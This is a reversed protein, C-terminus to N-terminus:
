AASQTRAARLAAKVEDLSSYPMPSEDHGPWTHQRAIDLALAVDVTTAPQVYVREDYTLTRTWLSGQYSPEEIAKVIGDRTISVVRAVVYTTRESAGQGIVFDHTTREIVALDGRKAKM